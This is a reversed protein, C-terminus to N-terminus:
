RIGMLVFHSVFRQIKMAVTTSEAEIKVQLTTGLGSGGNDTFPIRVKTFGGSGLKDVGLTWNIGLLKNGTGLLSPDAIKTYYFRDISTYFRSSVNGQAPSFQYSFKFRKEQDPYGFDMIKTEYKAVISLGNDSTGTWEYAQGNDSRSDFLFLKPQSSENFVVAYSINWGTYKIWGGKGENCLTDYVLVLSNHSDVGNPVFFMAYNDHYVASTRTLASKNLGAITMAIDKSRNATFPNDTDSRYLGRVNGELDICWVDNKVIIMSDNSAVGHEYTLPAIAWDSSSTGVVYWISREKAAYLRGAAGATGKLGVGASVDGLNINIFSSGGFTEPDAPNSYYLRDKISPSAFVWLHNKWWEIATGQPIAVVTSMTTGDYKVPTDTGNVGYIFDNAQVLSWRAGTTKSGGGTIDTWTIGDDSAQFKSTNGAGNLVRIIKKGGNFKYYVTRGLINANPNTGRATLGARMELQGRNRINWNEINAAYYDPISQPDDRDIVSYYYQHEFSRFQNRLM